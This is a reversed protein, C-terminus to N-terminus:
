FFSFYSNVVTRLQKDTLDEPELTESLHHIFVDCYLGLAKTIVPAAKRGAEDGDLDIGKLRQYALPASTVIRQNGAFFGCQPYGGLNVAHGGVPM